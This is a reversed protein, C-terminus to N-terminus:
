NFWELIAGFWPIVWKILLFVAGLIGVWCGCGCGTDIINDVKKFARKWKIDGKV